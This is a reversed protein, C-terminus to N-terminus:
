HSTRPKTCCLISPSSALICGETQAPIMGQSIGAPTRSDLPCRPSTAGGCARGARPSASPGAPCAAATGGGRGTDTAHCLHGFGEGWLKIVVEGRGQSAETGMRLPSPLGPWSSLSGLLSFRPRPEPHSGSQDSCRRQTHKHQHRKPVRGGCAGIWGDVWDVWGGPKHAVREERSSGWISVTGETLAAPMAALSSKSGHTRASGGSGWM